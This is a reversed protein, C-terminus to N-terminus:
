CDQQRSWEVCDEYISQYEDDELICANLDDDAFHWDIVHSNTDPEYGGDRDIIVEVQEGRFETLINTQMKGGFWNVM